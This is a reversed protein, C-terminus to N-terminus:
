QVIGYQWSMIGGFDYLSQYGLSALVQVTMNSRAGSHCYVLLPTTKDKVVKSISKAITSLPVSKASEIHGSTFESPERVDLVIAGEVMMEKAQKQSIRQPQNSMKNVEDTNLNM